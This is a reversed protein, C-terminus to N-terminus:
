DKESNIVVHKMEPLAVECKSNAEHEAKRQKEIVVAVAEKAGALMLRTIENQTEM